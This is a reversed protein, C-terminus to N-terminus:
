VKAEHKVEKIPEGCFCCFKMDADFCWAKGCSTFWNGDEDEKWVCESRVYCPMEKGMCDSFCEKVKTCDIDWVTRMAM